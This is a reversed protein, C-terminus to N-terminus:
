INSDSVVVPDEKVVEIFFVCLMHRARGARGTSLADEVRNSKRTPGCSILSLRAM